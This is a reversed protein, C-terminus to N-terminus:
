KRVKAINKGFHIIKKWWAVKRRRRVAKMPIPTRLHLLIEEDFSDYLKVIQM